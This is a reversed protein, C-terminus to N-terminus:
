AKETTQVHSFSHLSMSRNCWSSCWSSCWSIGLLNSNTMTISLFSRSRLNRMGSSQGEQLGLHITHHFAHRIQDLDLLFILDCQIFWLIWLWSFHVNGLLLKINQHFDLMVQLTLLFYLPCSKRRLEQQSLHLLSHRFHQGLPRIIKLTLPFRHHRVHLLFRARMLISHILNLSHHIFHTRCKVLKCWTKGSKRRCDLVQTRILTGLTCLVKINQFSDVIFNLIGLFDQVM